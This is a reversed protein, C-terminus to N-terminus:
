PQLHSATYLLSFVPAVTLNFTKAVKLAFAKCVKVPMRFYRKTTVPM